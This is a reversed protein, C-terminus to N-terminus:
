APTAIQKLNADQENDSAWEDEHFVLANESAVRYAVTFILKLGKTAVATTKWVYKVLDQFHQVNAYLIDSYPQKKDWQKGYRRQIVFNKGFLLNLKPKTRDHLSENHAETSSLTGVSAPVFQSAAV